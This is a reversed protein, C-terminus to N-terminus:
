LLGRRKLDGIAADRIARIQPASLDSHAAIGALLAQSIDEETISRTSAANEDNIAAGAGELISVCTGPPWGLVKDLAIYTSDRAARGDEVKMFADKSMGAKVALDYVTLGLESRRIRVRRALQSYNRTGDATV